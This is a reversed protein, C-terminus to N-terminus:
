LRRPNRRGLRGGLEPAGAEADPYMAETDVGGAGMIESMSRSGSDNRGVNADLFVPSVSRRWDLAAIVEERMADGLQEVIADVNDDAWEILGNQQDIFGSRLSDALEQAAAVAEAADSLEMGTSEPSRKLHAVTRGEGDAIDWRSFGPPPRRKKAAQLAAAPNEGLRRVCDPV